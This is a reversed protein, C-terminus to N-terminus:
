KSPNIQIAKGKVTVEDSTVIFYNTTKRHWRPAIIADAGPVSEIAKYLAAKQVPNLINQGLGLGISGVSDDHSLTIFGLLYWGTSTGVAPGLIDYTASTSIEGLNPTAVPIVSSNTSCGGVLVFSLAALVVIWKTASM